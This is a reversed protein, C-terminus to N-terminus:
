HSKLRRTTEQTYKGVDKEVYPNKCREPLTAPLCEHREVLNCAMDCYNGDTAFAGGDAGSLASHTLVSCVRLFVFIARNDVCIIYVFPLSM